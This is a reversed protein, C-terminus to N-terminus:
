PVARLTLQTSRCDRLPSACARYQLDRTLCVEVAVFESRSCTVRFAAQPAHNATAFQQELDRPNVNLTQSPARYAAPVQLQTFAKKVDGFYPQAGLGSCTGHTAWEHQILGRDPMIPLM